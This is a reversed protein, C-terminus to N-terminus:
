PLPVDAFAFPVEVAAGGFQSAVLRLKAFDVRGLSGSARVLLRMRGRFEAPRDPVRMLSWSLRQGDEDLIELEQMLLDNPRDLELPAIGPGRIKLKTGPEVTEYTLEVEGRPQDPNAKLEHITVKAFDNGVVTGAGGGLPVVLPGPLCAVVAVTVVGRLRALRSSPPDVEVLSLRLPHTWESRRTGPVVRLPPRAPPDPQPFLAQQAPAGPGTAPRVLSRREEDRAELRDPAAIGVIRLRPEASLLLDAVFTSTAVGAAEGGVAEETMVGVAAMPRGMGDGPLLGAAFDRDRTRVIRVIEVRFSGADATPATAAGPILALEKARLGPLGDSSYDRRLDAVAGLRAIAEWFPVPEPSELTIKRDPWAPPDTPRRTGRLPSAALLPMGSRAGIAAAVEALPRDRFDLRVMTPELLAAPEVEDYLARARAQIELDPSSRAERLASLAARGLHKLTAAAREREEFRASGLRAVQDAADDRPGWALLAVAVVGALGM